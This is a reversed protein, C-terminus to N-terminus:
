LVVSSGVAGFREFETADTTKVPNTVIVSLFDEAGAPHIVEVSPAAVVL